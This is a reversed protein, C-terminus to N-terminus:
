KPLGPSTPTDDLVTDLIQQGRKGMRLSVSQCLHTIQISVIHGCMTLRIAHQKLVAEELPISEMSKSKSAFLVQRASNENAQASSRDYM